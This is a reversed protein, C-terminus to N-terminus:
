LQELNKNCSRLVVLTFDDQILSEDLSGGVKRWLQDCFAQSDQKNEQLISACIQPLEPSDEQEEITESLGDSYILLMGGDPISIREEDLDFVEFIGIAQGLRSPINIIQNRNDLLLPKPHGARAFSFKCTEIDLIGYLLTVFMDSCDIQLLHQNVSRLASGPDDNRLAEIRVSSYTLAMFLAAPIGKGCVDGIVIGVQHDNLPIFDYFDGGVHKAPIMLAGIDIGPIKPTEKPLISSQIKCALRMEQDLREKEIMAAQAIKLEDYAQKLQCNKERLDQITLSESNELRRSYLELLDFAFQPHRIIVSDLWSFPVKILRCPTSARASATHTRNKSFKSMEGLIAYKQSIALNREDSTNLSKVIEVEGDMVLYFFESSSGESFLVKGKPFLCDQSSEKLSQLEVDPLKAFLPIERIPDNSM